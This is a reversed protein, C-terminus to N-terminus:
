KQQKPSTSQEYVKLILRAIKKDADHPMLKKIGERLAMQLERSWLIKRTLAVLLHPELFEEFVGIACRLMALLWVNDVQPSRPLPVLVAAKGLVSLESITSMGGRSIVLDAVAYAHKLEQGLFAYSHYHPHAFQMSDEVKGGTVHIVQVYRLLEPLARFVVANLRAAGGGGGMILVTPYDKNLDFLRRAEKESGSLIDHRVPNGTVYIKSKPIRSFLGSAEPISKGTFNFSVTVAKAFPSAIRTSLLLRSDPQHIIVPIKFIFAALAVPVQVFSGAGFIMDPKYSKILILSKIFGAITKFVDTFNALSFYRRWKGAPITFFDVPLSASDIIKKEIGKKTGIFFFQCDAKIKHLAAAVALLPTTPGGTGGGVLFVKM